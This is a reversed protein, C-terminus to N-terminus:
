RPAFARPDKRLRDMLDAYSSAEPIGSYRVLADLLPNM